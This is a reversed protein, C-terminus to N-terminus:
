QEKAAELEERSIMQQGADAANPQPEFHLKEMYPTPKGARFDKMAQVYVQKAEEVTKKGIIIDHRPGPQSRRRCLRGM